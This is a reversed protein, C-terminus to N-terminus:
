DVIEGDSDYYYNDYDDYEEHFRIVKDYRECKTNLCVLDNNNITFLHKGCAVCETRM